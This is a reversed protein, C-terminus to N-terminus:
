LQLSSPTFRLVEGTIVIDRTYRMAAKLFAPDNAKRDYNLELSDSTSSVVM